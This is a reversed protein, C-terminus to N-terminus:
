WCEKPSGFNMRVWISACVRTTVSALGSITVYPAGPHGRPATDGDEEHHDDGAKEDSRKEALEESAEQGGAPGM